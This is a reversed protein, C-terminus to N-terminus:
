CGPAKGDIHSRFLSMSLVAVAIGVAAAFSYGSDGPADTSQNTDRTSVTIWCNREM